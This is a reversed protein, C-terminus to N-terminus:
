AHLDKEIRGLLIRCSSGGLLTGLMPRLAALVPPVDELGLADPERGLSDCCAALAARATVPGVYVAICDLIAEAADTPPRHTAVPQTGTTPQQAVGQLGKTRETDM